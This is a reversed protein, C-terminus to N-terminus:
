KILTVKKLAREGLHSRYFERYEEFSVPKGATLIELDTFFVHATFGAPIMGNKLYFERRKQRAELNKCPESVSEIELLFRRDAYKAKLMQLARSGIGNGRVKPHVAFYDLMVLDNYKVTVALGTFKGDNTEVSFLEAEGIACQRLIMNFPKREILPFASRYLSKIRSLNEKNPPILQM